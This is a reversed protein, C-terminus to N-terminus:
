KKIGFLVGIKRKIGRQIGNKEFERWNINEKQFLNKVKKDRDFTLQVGTEQYSFVNKVQYSEIITNFVEIADGYISM